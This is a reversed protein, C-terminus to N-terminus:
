ILFLKESNKRLRAGEDYNLNKLYSFNLYSNKMTKKLKKKDLDRRLRHDAM